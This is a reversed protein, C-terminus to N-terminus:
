PTEGPFMATAIAAAIGCALGPWIAEPWNIRRWWNTEGAALARDAAQATERGLFFAFGVLAGAFWLPQLGLARLTLLIGCATAGFLLALAVHIAIDRTLAAM